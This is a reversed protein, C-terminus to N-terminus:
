SLVVFVLSLPVQFCFTLPWPWLTLVNSDMPTAIPVKVGSYFSVLTRIHQWRWTYSTIWKITLIDFTLTLLGSLDGVCFACCSILPHDYMVMLYQM